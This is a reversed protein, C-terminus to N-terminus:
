EAKRLHRDFDLVVSRHRARSQGPVCPASVSSPPLHAPAAPSWTAALIAGTRGYGAYCHVYVQGGAEIRERLFAVARQGEEITPAEMNFIPLHLYEFGYEALPEPELADETLTLIADYGLREMAHLIAAQEGARGPHGGGALRGPILWFHDIPPPKPISSRM